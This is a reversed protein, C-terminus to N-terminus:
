EEKKSEHEEFLERLGIITDSGTTAFVDPYIAHICFVASAKLSVLSYYMARCMHRLYGVRKEELHRFKM